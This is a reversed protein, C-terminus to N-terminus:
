RVLTKILRAAEQSRGHHWLELRLPEDVQAFQEEVSEILKEREIYGYVLFIARRYRALEVFNSLTKIDKKIGKPKLLSTKVEVIINNGEMHGPVHVLFDPKESAIGAAKLAQHGSKDVEGGLSFASNPPWLLRMQHYLEYCYVRERYISPGGHIPLRFYKEEVASTARELISTFEDV